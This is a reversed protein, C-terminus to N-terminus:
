SRSEDLGRVTKLCNVLIWDDGAVRIPLLELHVQTDPFVKDLLERRFAICSQTCSIDPQKSGSGRGIHFGFEPSFWNSLMPRFNLGDLRRRDEPNNLLLPYYDNSGYPQFIKVM